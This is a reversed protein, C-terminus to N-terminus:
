PQVVSPFDGERTVGASVGIYASIHLGVDLTSPVVFSFIAPLCTNGGESSIAPPFFHRDRYALLKVDM